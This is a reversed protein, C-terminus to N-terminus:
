LQFALLLSTAIGLFFGLASIGSCVLVILIANEAQKEYQDSVRQWDLFDVIHTPLFQKRVDFHEVSPVFSLILSGYAFAFFLIGFLFLIIDEKILSHDFPKDALVRFAAGSAILGTANATGLMKLVESFRQYFNHYVQSRADSFGSM